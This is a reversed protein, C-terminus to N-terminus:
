PDRCLESDVLPAGCTTVKSAPIMWMGKVTYIKTDLYTVTHYPVQMMAICMVWGAQAKCLTCKFFTSALTEMAGEKFLDGRTPAAPSYTALFLVKM